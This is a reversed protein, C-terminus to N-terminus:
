EVQKRKIEFLCELAQYYDIIKAEKVYTNKNTFFEIICSISSKTPNLFESDVDTLRHLFDSTFNYGNNESYLIGVDVMEDM